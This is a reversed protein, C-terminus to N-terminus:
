LWQWKAQKRFIVLKCCLQPRSIGHPIIEKTHVDGLWKRVEKTDEDRERMEGTNRERWGWTVAGNIANRSDRIRFTMMMQPELAGTPGLRWKQNGLYNVVCPLAEQVLSWGTALGTGVCSLVVYFFWPCVAMSYAPNSGAIWHVLAWPWRRQGWPWTNSVYRTLIMVRFGVARVSTKWNEETGVALHRSFVSRLDLCHVIYLM